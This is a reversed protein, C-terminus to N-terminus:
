AAIPAVLGAPRISDALHRRNSDSMETLPLRVEDSCLGLMAAASKVATPNIEIFMARCLDSIQHHIAKASLFDGRLCAGVLEAVPAPAINALV